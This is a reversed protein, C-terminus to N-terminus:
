IGAEDRIVPSVVYTYDLGSKLVCPTRSENMRMKVSEREVIALM